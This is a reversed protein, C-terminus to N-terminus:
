LRKESAKGMANFVSNGNFNELMCSIFAKREMPIFTFVWPFLPFRPFTVLSSKRSSFSRGVPVNRSSIKGFTCSPSLARSRSILLSWCLGCHTCRACSVSRERESHRGKEVLWCEGVVVSPFDYSARFVNRRSLSPFLESRHYSGETQKWKESFSTTNERTGM